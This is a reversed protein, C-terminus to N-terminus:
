VINFLDLLCILFSLNPDPVSLFIVCFPREHGVESLRLMARKLSGFSSLKFTGRKLSAQCESSRRECAVPEPCFKPRESLRRASRQLSGFSSLKSKARKANAQSVSSRVTLYCNQAVV